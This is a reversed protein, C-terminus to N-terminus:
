VYFTKNIFTLRVTISDIYFTNYDKIKVIKPLLLNGM